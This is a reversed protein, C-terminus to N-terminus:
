DWGFVSHSRRETRLFGLSVLRHSRSRHRRADRQSRRTSAAGPRFRYRVAPVVLITVVVISTWPFSAREQLVPVLSAGAITAGIFLSGCDGMFLRAPPRNWYLFGMLSGALATLLLVIPAGLQYGCCYRSSCRRLSHSVVRLVMWTTSCTSRTAFALSGSRGSSRTRGLCATIRSDDLSFVLFAGIILSSVLKALPSLQFRDDLVGVVFMAIAAFPVPLWETPLVGGDIRSMVVSFGLVAALAIAIGGM